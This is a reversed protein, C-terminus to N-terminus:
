LSSTQPACPTPIRGSVRPALDRGIATAGYLAIDPKLTEIVKVVAKTYPETAYHELLKNDVVAVEDAGYAIVDQAKAKINYGILAGIVKCNLKEALERAKGIIELSVKQIEGDRQEIFVVINEYKNEM